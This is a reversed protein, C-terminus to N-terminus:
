SKAGDASVTAAQLAGAIAVGSLEVMALAGSQHLDTRLDKLKGRGSTLEDEGLVLAFRAGARDARKMQPKLGKGTVDVEVRYPGAVRIQEALELARVEAGPMAAIYLHPGGAQAVESASLRSAALLALREIGAAFGVAQTPPGGLQAVLDDYRGGGLIADQAGLEGSAFEFITGTYYDLGRVLRPDRVYAIRASELLRQVAAFHASAAPSFAGAIDPAKEAVARCPPRKCDLVRLPNTLARRQCAECLEGTHAGLYQQLITRYAARSEPDGLSNVRVSVGTLGLAACLRTLMIIMEADAAPAGAGFLEAGIQYFQRYRGKQPREARFMPGTYWWRQIPSTKAYNHEIYARVAGATGEPRLTLADGGRDAFSYMEKSVIDTDEGIGRAFLGTDEVVPLLVQRYGYSQLVETAKGVVQTWVSSDLFADSAGPLVDNM